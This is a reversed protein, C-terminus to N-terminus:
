GAALRRLENLFQEGVSPDSFYFQGLKGRTAKFELSYTPGVGMLLGGGTSEIDALPVSFGIKVGGFLKGKVGLLRQNTVVVTQGASPVPAKVQTAYVAVEAREGEDLLASLAEAERGAVSDPDGIVTVAM